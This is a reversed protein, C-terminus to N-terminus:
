ECKLPNEVGAHFKKETFYGQLHESTSLYLLIEFNLWSHHSVILTEM